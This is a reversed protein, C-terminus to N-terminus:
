NQGRRPLECFMEGNMTNIVIRRKEEDSNWWFGGKPLGSLAHSTGDCFWYSALATITEFRAQLATADKLREDNPHTTVPSCTTQDNQLERNMACSILRTFENKANQDSASYYLSLRRGEAFIATADSLIGVRIKTVESAYAATQSENQLTRAGSINWWQILFPVVVSSLLALLAISRDSM